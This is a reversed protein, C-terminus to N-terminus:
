KIYRKLKTKEHGVQKLMWTYHDSEPSNEINKKTKILIKILLLTKFAIDNKKYNAVTNALKTNLKQPIVDELDRDVRGLFNNDKLLDLRIIQMVYRRLINLQELANWKHGRSLNKSIKKLTIISLSYPNSKLFPHKTYDSCSMQESRNKKIFDYKDFLIVGDPEWFFTSRNNEDILCLDISFDLDSKFYFTYLNGTWAFYGQYVIVDVDKVKSFFSRINKEFSGVNKVLCFLDIDSKIVDTNYTLSGGFLIGSVQDNTQLLSLVEILKDSKFASLKTRLKPLTAETIAIM